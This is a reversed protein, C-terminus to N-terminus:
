EGEGGAKEEPKILREMRQRWPTDLECVGGQWERQIADLRCQLKNIECKDCPKDTYEGHPCYDPVGMYKLSVKGERRQPQDTIAKKMFGFTLQKM